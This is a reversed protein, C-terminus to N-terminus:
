LSYQFWIDRKRPTIQRIYRIMIHFYWNFSAILAPFFGYFVRFDSTTSTCSQDKIDCHLLSPFYKLPFQPEAQAAIQLSQCYESLSAAAAAAAKRQIEIHIRQPFHQVTLNNSLCRLAHEKTISLRRLIRIM